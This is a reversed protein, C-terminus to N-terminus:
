SWTILFISILNLLVRCLMHYQNINVALVMCQFAIIAMQELLVICFTCLLSLISIDYSEEFKRPWSGMDYSEQFLLFLCM